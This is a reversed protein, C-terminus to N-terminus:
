AVSSPSLRPSTPFVDLSLMRPGASTGSFYGSALPEPTSNMTSGAFNWSANAASRGGSCLATMAAVCRGAASPAKECGAPGGAQFDVGDQATTAVASLAAPVSTIREIASRAPAVIVSTSAECTTITEWGSTTASTIRVAAAAM